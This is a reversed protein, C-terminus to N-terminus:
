IFESRKGHALRTVHVRWWAIIRYLFANIKNVSRLVVAFPGIRLLERAFFGALSNIGRAKLNTAPTPNSGVVKLNHARRAAPSSMWRRKPRLRLRKTSGREPKPPSKVRNSRLRNGTARLRLLLISTAAILAETFRSNAFRHCGNWVLFVLAPLM